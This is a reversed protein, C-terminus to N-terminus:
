FRKENIEALEIGIGHCDPCTAVDDVSVEIAGAGKCTPCPHDIKLFVNAMISQSKLSLEKESMVPPEYGDFKMAITELWTAFDFVKTAIKHRLKM